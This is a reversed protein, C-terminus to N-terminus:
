AGIDGLPEAPQRPGGLPQAEEVHRPEVDRARQDPTAGGGPLGHAVEHGVRHRGVDLALTQIARLGGIRSPCRMVSSVWSGAASARTIASKAASLFAISM